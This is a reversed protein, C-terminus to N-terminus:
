RAGQGERKDGTTYLPQGWTAPGGAVSDVWDGFDAPLPGSRSWWFGRSDISCDGRGATRTREWFGCAGCVAAYGDQYWRTPEWAHDGCVCRGDRIESAPMRNASTFRQRVAATGGRAADLVRPLKAKRQDPDRANPAAVTRNEPTWSVGRPRCEAREHQRPM